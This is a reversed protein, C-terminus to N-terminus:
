RYTLNILSHQWWDDLSSNNKFSGFILCLDMIYFSIVCQCNIAGFSLTTKQSKYVSVRVANTRLPLRYPKRNIMSFSMFPNISLNWPNKIFNINDPKPKFQRMNGTVPIWVLATDRSVKYRVPAMVLTSNTPPNSGLPYWLALLRTQTEANWLLPRHWSLCLFAPM